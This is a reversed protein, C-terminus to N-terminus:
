AKKVGMGLLQLLLSVEEISKLRRYSGISGGYSADFHLTWDGNLLIYFSLRGTSAVYSGDRSEELGLGLLGADSLPTMGDPIEIPKQENRLCENEHELKNICRQMEDFLKEFSTQLKEARKSFDTTM